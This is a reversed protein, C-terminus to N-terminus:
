SPSYTRTEGLASRLRDLRDYALRGSHANAYEFVGERWIEYELHKRGRLPYRDFVTVLKMLDDTARVVWKLSRRAMKEHVPTSGDLLPANVCNPLFPVITRCFGFLSGLSFCVRLTATFEL